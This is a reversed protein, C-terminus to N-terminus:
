TEGCREWGSRIELDNASAERINALTRRISGSHGPRAQLMAAQDYRDNFSRQVITPLFSLIDATMGM